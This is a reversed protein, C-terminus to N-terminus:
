SDLWKKAEVVFLREFDEKAKKILKLKEPSKMARKCTSRYDWYLQILPALGISKGPLDGSFYLEDWDEPGVEDMLDFLARFPTVEGKCVCALHYKIIILKAPLEGPITVGLAALAQDFAPFVIQSVDREPYVVELFSKDFIGENLLENVVKQMTPVNLIGLARRAAYLNLQERM